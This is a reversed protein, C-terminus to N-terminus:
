TSWIRPDCAEYGHTHAFLLRRLARMWQHAAEASDGVYRALWVDPLQAVGGLGDVTLTRAREHLAAPVAPGAYVLTGVVTHGALGAASHALADDADFVTQECWVLRGGREMETRQCWRGDRYREGSAPRGLCVVDGYLLTADAELAFRSRVVPRAGDYLINELPLWELRAGPALRATVAQTAERGYGRYWKAAGVSTLLVRSRPALDIDISLADGAAIGGPPHVLVHTLTGAEDVDHRLVRLPGEHRREVPMTRGGREAYALNLRARWGPSPDPDGVGDTSSSPRPASGPCARQASSHMTGGRAAGRGHVPERVPAATAKPLGGPMERTM